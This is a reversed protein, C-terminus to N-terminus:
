GETSESLGLTSKMHELVPGYVPVDFEVGIWNDRCWRVTAPFPGLDGIRLNITTHPTLKANWPLRFQCGQESLDKLKLRFSRGKFRTFGEAEIHHRLFRRLERAGNPLLGREHAPAFDHDHTM